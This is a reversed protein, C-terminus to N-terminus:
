NLEHKGVVKQVNGVTMGQAKFGAIAENAMEECCFFHYQGGAFVKHTAYEKHGMAPMAKLRVVYTEGHATKMTTSGKMAPAALIITQGNTHGKANSGAVVWTATEAGHGKGAKVKMAVMGHSEKEMECAPAKVGVAMNVKAVCCAEGAGGALKAACCPMLEGHEVKDNAQMKRSEAWFARERANPDAATLSDCHACPQAATCTPCEQQAAVKPEPKVPCM